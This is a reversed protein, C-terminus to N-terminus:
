YNFQPRHMQKGYTGTGERKSPQISSGHNTVQKDSTQNPDTPQQKQSGEHGWKTNSKHRRIKNEKKSKLSKQVATGTNSAELKITTVQQDLLKSGKSLEIAKNNCNGAQVITENIVFAKGEHDEYTTNKKKENRTVGQDILQLAM